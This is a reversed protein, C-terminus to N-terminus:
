RHGKNQTPTAPAARMQDDRVDRRLENVESRVGDLKANTERTSEKLASVDTSISSVKEHVFDLKYFVAAAGVVVTILIGIVGASDIIGRISWAIPKSRRTDSIGIPVFNDDMRTPATSNPDGSLTQRTSSTGSEKLAKFTEPPRRPPQQTRPKWKTM